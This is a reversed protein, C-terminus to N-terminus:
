EPVVGAQQIVQGWHSMESALKRYLADPTAQAADFPQTDLKALQEAVSPDKIAEQLARSLQAVVPRPTGKPAYFGYWLSMTLQSYGVEAVTPVGPLSSLRHEGTVAFAKLSGSALHPAVPGPSDCLLDVRGALVDVMAPAAGRYLVQTVKTDLSNELIIGFLHGGSGVGGTAFTVKGKNRRIYDVLENMNNPPFSKGSVLIFATEAFLGIHDFSKLPDFQLDKYLFPGTAMGFHHLLLTYGDPAAHAVQRSGITGGAGTVNQVVVQQGLSNKLSNALIRTLADSAGGAPYPSVLTIAKKTPYADQAVASGCLLALMSVLGLRLM